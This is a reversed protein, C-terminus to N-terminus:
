ARDTVSRLVAAATPEATAPNGGSGPTAEHAGRVAVEAILELSRSRSLAEDRLDDFMTAAQGALGAELVTMGRVGTELTASSWPSELQIHNEGVMAAPHDFQPGNRRDRQRGGPKVSHGAPQSRSRGATRRCSGPHRPTRTTRPNLEAKVRVAFKEWTERGFALRPGSADKSDRILVAGPVAAAEVCNGSNDASYSSKRWNMISVM